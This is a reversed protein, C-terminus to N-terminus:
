RAADLRARLQHIAAMLHHALMPDALKATGLKPVAEDRVETLRQRLGQLADHSSPPLQEFERETEHVRGLMEIFSADDTVVPEPAPPAGRFWKLVILVTSAVSLILGFLAKIRDLTATSLLPNNRALYMKSGESLPFGSPITLDKEELRIRTRQEVGPSYLVELVRSIARPDVDKNAVLHLHVGITEIDKPPVPPSVKYMYATIRAQAVWGLRLALSKPFPIELLSYDRNKVLFDAVDSPAFSTLVVVEPLNKVAMAVMEEPALNSETYDIGDRLGSFALIQKGIVHVGSAKSGLNIRKGKLDAISNIGPRVLVHLLEPAVTAVHVVNQYDSGLGGQIFALDLKGAELQELAEQSGRGPVVQLGLGLRVAETQLTKALFHRNSLLDSGTIRLSYTRPIFEYVFHLAVGLLALVALAALAKRLGDHRQIRDLADNLLKEAPKNM